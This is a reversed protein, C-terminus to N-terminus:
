RIHDPHSFVPHFHSFDLIEVRIQFTYTNKMEPNWFGLIRILRRSDNSKEIGLDIPSVRPEHYQNTEVHYDCGQRQHRPRVAVDM